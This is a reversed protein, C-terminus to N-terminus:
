SQPPRLGNQYKNSLSPLSETVQISPPGNWKRSEKFQRDSLLERGEDVGHSLIEPPAAENAVNDNRLVGSNRLM